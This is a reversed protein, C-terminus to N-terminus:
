TSYHRRSDLKVEKIDIETSQVQCAIFTNELFKHGSM